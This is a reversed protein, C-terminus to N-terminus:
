KARLQQIAARVAPFQNGFQAPPAKALFSEYYSLAQEPNGMKQYLMGLDLLAVVEKPDAQLAKEFESRAVETDGRQLAILGL